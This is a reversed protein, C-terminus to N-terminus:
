RRQGELKDMKRDRNSEESVGDREVIGKGERGFVAGRAGEDTIAQDNAEFAADETDEEAAAEPGRAPEEDAREWDDGHYRPGGSVRGEDAHRESGPHAPDRRAEDEVHSNNDPM